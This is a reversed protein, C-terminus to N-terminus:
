SFRLAALEFEISSGLGRHASASASACVAEGLVVDFDVEFIEELSEFIDLRFRSVFVPVCKVQKVLVIFYLFIIRKLSRSANSDSARAFFSICVKSAKSTCIYVVFIIEELIEFFDLRFSARSLCTRM